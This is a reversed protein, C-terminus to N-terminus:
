ETPFAIGKQVPAFDMTLCIFKLQRVTNDSNDIRVQCIRSGNEPLEMLQVRVLNGSQGYCAMACHAGAAPASVYVTFHGQPIDTLVQGAEDTLLLRNAPPHDPSGSYEATIVVDEAPMRVTTVPSAPDEFIGTGADSTWGIFPQDAPTKAMIQLQQGASAAASATFAGDTQVLGDVMTVTYAAYDLSDANPSVYGSSGRLSGATSSTYSKNEEVPLDYYRLVRAEVGSEDFTRDTVNMTGSDYGKYELTYRADSYFTIVKQDGLLMVSVDETRCFIQENEVSAVLSGAANRVFVDVPCAVVVIRKPREGTVAEFVDAYQLDMLSQPYDKQFYTYWMDQFSVYATTLGTDYAEFQAISEELDDIIWFLGCAGVLAEEAYGIAMEADLRNLKYLLEVASLLETARQGSPDALWAENLVREAKQAVKQIEDYCKMKYYREQMDDTKLLVNCLTSNVSYAVSFAAVQPYRVKVKDMLKDWFHDVLAQTGRRGVSTLIGQEADEQLEDATKRVQTLCQELADHLALNSAPCEALMIELMQEM